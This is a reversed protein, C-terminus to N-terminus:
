PVARAPLQEYCHSHQERQVWTRNDWVTGGPAAPAPPSRAHGVEQAVAETSPQAYSQSEVEEGFARLPHDPDDEALQEQAARHVTARTVDGGIM